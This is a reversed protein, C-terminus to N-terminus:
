PRKKSQTGLKVTKEPLYYTVGSIKATLETDTGSITVVKVQMPRIVREIDLFTQKIVDYKGSVETSFGLTLPTASGGIGGATPTPATSTAAPATTAVGGESATSSLNIIKAGSRDLIANQLSNSFTTPDGTSPLADLIVKLNSDSEVARVKQLNSDAILKNVNTKLTKANEINQKLTKNTESKASIVEQNFIAQRILFQLTVLCIVVIVSAGAVWLLITKNTKDIQQRKKLGTLKQENPQDM